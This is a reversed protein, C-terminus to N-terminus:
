VHAGQPGRKAPTPNHRRRRHRSLLESGSSLGRERALTLLIIAVAACVSGVLAGALVDTPYHVGVYVRSFGVAAALLVFLFAARPLIYSLLVAGAFSTAAHGAPFSTSHVTLLPDAKADHLFPRQRVFLDKLGFSASDAAWVTVATLVALLVASRVTRAVVFGVALALVVWIIGLKAVWSLGEFLWNLGHVRHTVVWDFADRDLSTPPLVVAAM